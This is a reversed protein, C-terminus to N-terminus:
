HSSTSVNSQGQSNINIEIRSPFLKAIEDIHTIFIIKEFIRNLGFLKKVFDDRSKWTDLQGIDGEDIFLTKMKTRTPRPIIALEESIALRLAANIQTKEGGSFTSIDRYGTPTGISIDFGFSSKKKQDQVHKEELIVNTYRKDTLESLILSTKKSIRPLLKKIAFLPVGRIHFIDDRIQTLLEIQDIIDNLEQLDLELESKLHQIRNIEGTIHQLDRRIEANKIKIQNLKQENDELQNNISNYDKIFPELNRFDEEYIKISQNIQELEARLDRILETFDRSKAIEGRLQDLAKKKQKKEQTHIKLKQLEEAQEKSFINEIEKRIEEIKIKQEQIKENFEMLEKVKKDNLENIQEILESLIFSDINIKCTLDKLEEYTSEANKLEENLMNILSLEAKGQLWAIENPIRKIREIIRGESRLLQFARSSDIETKLKQRRSKLDTLKSEIESIRKEKSYRLETLDEVFLKMRSRLESVKEDCKELEILEEQIIELDKTEEELLLLAQRMNEIKTQSNKIDKLKEIIKIRNDKSTELKAKLKQYLEYKEELTQKKLKINTIRQEKQTIQVQIDQLNKEIVQKKESLLPLTEIEKQRIEITGSIKNRKQNLLELQESVLDRAKKFIDLQFLGQLIKLRESSRANGFSKMEDQRIISSSCFSLYNFGLIAIIKENLEPITGHERKGNIKLELYSTNDKRIGRRVEVIKNQAIKFKIHTYGGLKLISDVNVGAIDLRSSRRYLTYTLADLISTKGSGTIGTIAILQNTFPIITEQPGYSLFDKMRIELLDFGPLEQGAAVQM